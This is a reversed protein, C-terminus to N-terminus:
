LIEKQNHLSVLERIGVGKAEAAENQINTWCGVLTSPPSVWVCAM